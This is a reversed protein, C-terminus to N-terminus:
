NNGLDKLYKEIARTKDTYFLELDALMEEISVFVFNKCGIKVLYGNTMKNIIVDHNSQDNWYKIKSEKSMEVSNYPRGADCVARPEETFVKNSECDCSRVVDRSM